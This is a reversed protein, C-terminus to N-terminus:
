GVALKIFSAQTDSYTVMISIRGYDPDEGAVLSGHPFSAHEEFGQPPKGSLKQKQITVHAYGSRILYSAVLAPLEGIEFPRNLYICFIEANAASEETHGFTRLVELPIDQAKGLNHNSLFQLLSLDKTSM